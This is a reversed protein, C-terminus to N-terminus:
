LGSDLSKVRTLFEVSQRFKLETSDNELDSHRIHCTNWVLLLFLWTFYLNCFILAHNIPTMVIYSFIMVDYTTLAIRWVCCELSRSFIIFCRHISVKYCCYRLTQRKKNHNTLLLCLSQILETHLVISNASSNVVNCRIIIALSIPYVISLRCIGPTWWKM